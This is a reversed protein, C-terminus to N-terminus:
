KQHFHLAEKDIFPQEPEMTVEDDDFADPNCHTESYTTVNCCLAKLCFSDFRASLGQLGSLM